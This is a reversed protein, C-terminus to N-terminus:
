AEKELAVGLARAKDRALPTVVAGRGLVIRGGDRAAAVVARETVAGREIRHVAPAPPAPAAPVAGAQLERVVERVVERVIDRLLDGETMGAGAGGGRGGHARRGGQRVPLRPRDRGDHPLRRGQDDAAKEAENTALIAYAAPQMELVFLSEGGLVMSGRKSRNVLFAHQHDISAVIQSALM